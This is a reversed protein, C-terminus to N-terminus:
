DLSATIVEGNEVSTIKEIKTKADKLMKECHLKLKNGRQYLNIASELSEQGKELRSVIEQLEQMAEEFSMNSFKEDNNISM